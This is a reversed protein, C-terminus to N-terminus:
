PAPWEENITIDFIKSNIIEDPFMGEGAPPLARAIMELQASISWIDPGGRVPGKYGDILRCTYPAFGEPTQLPMDFWDVGENLADRIWARLATIEPGNGQWVISRVEPVDKWKRRVRARGTVMTSRKTPSISEYSSGSALGLPLSSPYAIAM